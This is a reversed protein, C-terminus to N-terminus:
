GRAIAIMDDAQAMADRTAARICDRNSDLPVQTARDVERCGDIAADNIRQRLARVDANYRLDLDSTDVVRQATVTEIPAGSSTRRGTDYHTVGPATVIIDESNDYYPQKPETYTQAFSPTALLTLASAAAFALTAINSSKM